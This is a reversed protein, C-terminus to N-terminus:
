GAAGAPALAEPLARLDGTFEYWIKRDGGRAELIDLPPIGLRGLPRTAYPEDGRVVKETIPERVKGCKACTAREVTLMILPEGVDEETKCDECRLGIVIDRGLRLHGVAGTDVRFRELIDAASTSEVGWEPVETVEGYRFHGECEARRAARTIYFDNITCNVVIKKALEAEGEGGHVVRLAEQVQMAGIISGMTSITPVRNLNLNRRAIVGCSLIAQRISEREGRTLTCEYCPGSDPMFVTVDGLLNEMSGDVWPKGLKQCMRNVSRRALRNDLCSFVMDARRLLGLGLVEDVGGVLPLVEVDPNLARLQAAMVEAKPRGHDSERFFVSRTLNAVEVTDRDLVVILKVGMMALNKAVENGLAGAGVVLVRLSRVTDLRWASSIALSHYRDRTVDNIRM